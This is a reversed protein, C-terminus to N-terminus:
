QSPQALRSPCFTSFSFCYRSTHNRREKRWRGGGRSKQRENGRLGEDRTRVFGRREDGSRRLGEDEQGGDGTFRRREDKTKRREDRTKRGEYGRPPDLPPRLGGPRRPLLGSPVAEFYTGEPPKKRRKRQREFFSARRLRRSLAAFQLPTRRIRLLAPFDAAAAPRPCSSLMEGAAGGGKKAASKGQCDGARTSDNM